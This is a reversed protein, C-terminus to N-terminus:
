SILAQENSIATSVAVFAVTKGTGRGQKGKPAGFYAEDLQITGDLYYNKDRKGM